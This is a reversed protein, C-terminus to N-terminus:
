EGDPAPPLSTPTAGYIDPRLLHRSIGTAREIRLVFEAPPQKQRTLWDWISSQRTGIKRALASQSGAILVAKELPSTKKSMRGM